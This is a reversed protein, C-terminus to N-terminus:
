QNRGAPNGAAIRRCIIGYLAAAEGADPKEQLAAASGNFVAEPSDSTSTKLYEELAVANRYGPASHKTKGNM